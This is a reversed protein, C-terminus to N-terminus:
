DAKNTKWKFDKFKIRDGGYKRKWKKKSNLGPVCTSDQITPSQPVFILGTLFGARGLCLLLTQLPGAYHQSIVYIYICIPYILYM